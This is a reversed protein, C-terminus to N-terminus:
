NARRFVIFEKFNQQYIFCISKDSTYVDVQGIKGKSDYAIATSAINCNREIYDKIPDKDMMNLLSKRKKTIDYKMCVEECSYGDVRKINYKNVWSEISRELHPGQFDTIFLIKDVIPNKHRGYEGLSEPDPAASDKNLTLKEKIYLDIQRM